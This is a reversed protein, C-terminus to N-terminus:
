ILFCLITWIVSVLGGGLLAYGLPLFRNGGVKPGLYGNAARKAEKMLERQSIGQSALYDDRVIFIAEEFIKPDPDKVIIVKKSLGKVM